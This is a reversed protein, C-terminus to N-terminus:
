AVELLDPQRLPKEVLSYLNDSPRKGRTLVLDYATKRRLETARARWEYSFPQDSQLIDRLTAKGGRAKFWTIMLEIHTM